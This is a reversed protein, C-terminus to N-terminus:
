FITEGSNVMIKRAWGSSGRVILQKTAPLDLEAPGAEKKAANLLKGTFSYVYITEAYPSDVYLRGSSASVAVGATAADDAGTPADGKEIVREFPAWAWATLYLMRTGKPVYLTCNKYKIFNVNINERDPPTTWEVDVSNLSSCDYFALCDISSVSRPIGVSSLKDCNYFAGNTIKGISNPISVSSLNNCASFAWEGLRKVSNPIKISTLGNCNYFARDGINSVSNPIAISTLKDCAYFARDGIRSVKYTKEAYTVTPPISVEGSYGAEGASVVEVEDANSDTAAYHIGDAVFRMAQTQAPGAVTAVYAQQSVTVTKKKTGVWVDVESTRAAGGNNAALIFFVGNGSGSPSSPVLTIWDDNKTVSWTSVSTVRVEQALPKEAVINITEPSLDIVSEGQTVTLVASRSGNSITVAGTRAAGTSNTAAAVYFEGDGSGTAPSPDLTIWDSGSTVAATWDINADVAVPKFGSENGVFSLSNGLLRIYPMAAQTVHIYDVGTQGTVTITGNRASTTTNDAATVTFHGDEVGFNPTCTLWDVDAYAVWAINATVDVITDRPSEAEFSLTHASLIIEPAGYQTITISKSQADEGTVTIIGERPRMGDYDDVMVTFYGNGSGFPPTVTIWDVDVGTEWTVNSEIEIIRGEASEAGFSLSSASLVIHAAADQIIRLSRSPTTGNTVILLGERPNTSTNATATVTFTATADASDPSITFWTANRIVKWPLNAEVTVPTGAPHKATFFVSDTSLTMWASAGAQTVSITLIIADGDSVTITGGRPAALGNDEAAVYFEGDGNGTAQFFTIWDVNATAEWFTNSTVEITQSGTTNAVFSLSTASLIIEPASPAQTVVITHEPAGGGSITITGERTYIGGNRETPIVAMEMDGSGSAPFLTLWTVNVTAEWDVNATVDITQSQSADSAEAEFFISDTSHIQPLGAIQTVLIASTETGNTVTITGDRPSTTGNVAASVVFTERGSGSEASVTLWGAANPSVSVTWDTFARVEITTDGPTEAEFFLRVTSTSLAPNAEQSVYITDTATGNTVTVKGMRAVGPNMTVGVTFHGPKNDSPNAPNLIIWSSDQQATWAVYCTVEIQRPTTIENYGFTLPTKTVNFEPNAQQTVYITDNLTGNSVVVKGTRAVGPNTSVAITFNGPKSDAPTAPNLIIWASDNAATWATYCIVNIPRTTTTENHGFSLPTKTVNFTPDAQQTVYITDNLTGNSVVVKGTRAVGPNTSVAITFNGPKSDAPNAPNLIIWASDNAATWAVYCTVDIQRPVADNHGFTLPTTTVDFTPNAQQTVYITDTTTGNSVLVKGKREVGPSTAVAITFHGPTNDSPNAPNLIIWASDNAATWATYCIVDIQRPTTENHAFSLPTNTVDFVPNAQQTVYITDSTTGNTVIVKGTRAVGPNTSVAITFNGAGVGSLPNLTIWSSDRSVTWFPRATVDIQRPTTENYGFTLPATSVEMFEAEQTATVNITDNTGNPVANAFVFAGTRATYANNVAATVVITDNGAGSTPAVTLWPINETVTWPFDTSVFISDILNGNGSRGAVFFLSDSSIKEKINAGFKKWVLPNQYREKSGPPVILRCNAFPFTWTGSGYKGDFISCESSTGYGWVANPPTDWGVELTSMVGDLLFILEGLSTISGPLTASTLNSCDRFAQAGIATVGDRVHVTKIGNRYSYWPPPPAGNHWPPPIIGGIVGSYDPMAGTGSITLTSDVFSWTLPGATGSVTTVTVNCTATKNGDQTTVTINTSGLGVFSVTGNSVTAVSSNGTSWSVTQNTASSPSITATLTVPPDGVTKNNLSTPNLSVSTVPISVTVNCTATKNGDQTTVTINTSGAGVFSVTGNSVTAVATNGTSWSVNQNTASSPSITATLTVPSDGIIKNLSTQNLSVSTVAVTYEAFTGFDQWGTASQYTSKSGQPVTLTASSLPVNHFTLMPSPISPPSTRLVTVNRLSTCNSFAGGEITTVLSPVTISTINSCYGFTYSRITTVSDPITIATLSTCVLFSHNGITTVSNPITISTLNGCHSFAYSGITTVGGGINVTTISGSYGSWPSSSDSPYDPMAGTGSITLTGGTLSWTLTGTTGSQGFAQAAFCLCVLSVGLIKKIATTLTTRRRCSVPLLSQKRM